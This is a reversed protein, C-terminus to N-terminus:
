DKGPIACVDDEPTTVPGKEFDEATPKLTLNYWRSDKNEILDLWKITVGTYTAIRGM